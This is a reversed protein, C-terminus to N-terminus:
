DEAKMESSPPNLIKNRRKQLMKPHLPLKSTDPTQLRSNPTQANEPAAVVVCVYFFIHLSKKKKKKKKQYRHVYIKQVYM